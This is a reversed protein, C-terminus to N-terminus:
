FNSVQSQQPPESSQRRVPPLNDQATQNDRPQETRGEPLPHQTQPLTFWKPVRRNKWKAFYAKETRYYERYAEVTDSRKCHDPMCQPPATHKEIMANDRDPINEPLHWLAAYHKECAHKKDYRVSYEVFLWALYAVTWMYNHGSARVWVASPHNKHTAKYAVQNGDLVVHATSLLQCTELIMKVVHKDCAYRAALIPNTDLYFINM